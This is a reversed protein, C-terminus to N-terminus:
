IQIRNTAIVLIQLLVCKPFIEFKSNKQIGMHLVFPKKKMAISIKAVLYLYNM